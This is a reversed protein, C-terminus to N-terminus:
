AQVKAIAQGYEVPQGEEICIEIIEGAVKSIVDNALGLSVIEGIIQGAEVKQGVEIKEKAPRFYGVVPSQVDFTADAAEAVVEGAESEQTEYVDDPEYSLDLTAKFSYEGSRLKVFRYGHKQATELAYSIIERNLESM